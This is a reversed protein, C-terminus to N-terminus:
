EHTACVESRLLKVQANACVENCLLKVQANACVESRLLKVQANACVEGKICETYLFVAQEGFFSLPRNKGKPAKPSEFARM